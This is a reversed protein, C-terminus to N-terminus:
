IKLQHIGSKQTMKLPNTQQQNIQTINTTVEVAIVAIMTKRRERNITGRDVKGIM